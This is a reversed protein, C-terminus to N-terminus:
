SHHRSGIAVFVGKCPIEHTEGTKSHKVRVGTVGLPDEDGLVEDLEHFWLPEIKPNKM